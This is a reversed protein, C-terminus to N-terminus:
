DEVIARVQSHKYPSSAQRNKLIRIRIAHIAAATMYLEDKNQLKDWEDRIARIAEGDCIGDESFGINQNV